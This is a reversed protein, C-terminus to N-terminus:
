GYYRNGKSLNDKANLIQLNWPVHLGCVGKGRLPIVHDVHYEITNLSLEELFKAFKYLNEIETKHEKSLWSPCANIKSTNYIMWDARRKAKNKQRTKKASSVVKAPNNQKWEKAKQIYKDKKKAYALKKTLSACEKCYSHLGDKRTKDKNFLSTPKLLNCKKCTKM